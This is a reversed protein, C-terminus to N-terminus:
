ENNETTIDPVIGPILVEGGNGWETVSINDEGITVEDGTLIDGSITTLSNRKVSINDVAYVRNMIPYTAGEEYLAFSIDIKDDVAFFYDTFLTLNTDTNDDASYTAITYTHSKGRTSTDAAAAVGTVANFAVRHPTTYTLEGSVPMVGKDKDTAVIRLKAFPRTLNVMINGGTFNEKTTIGTFADRSEDMARWAGKLTIHNLDATNYHNDVNRKGQTVVDAWVVFKYDRNPILDLTFEVVPEDSYAIQKIAAVGDMYIQMIYRMTVNDTDSGLIGNVFLGEASDAGAVARSEDVSVCISTRITDDVTIGLGGGNDPQKSCGALM